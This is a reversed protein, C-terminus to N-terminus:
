RVLQSRVSDNRRALDQAWQSRTGQRVVEPVDALGIGAQKEPVDPAPVSRPVPEIVQHPPDERKALKEGREPPDQWDVFFGKQVIQLCVEGSVNLVTGQQSYCSCREGMHVCAAPYPAQRPRTVEDYVPATHPLSAIRPVRQSIYDQAMDYAVQQANVPPPDAAPGSVIMRPGGAGVPAPQGRNALSSYAVWLLLPILLLMLALFYLTRPIKKKGTHLSASRYWAYVDKPFPQMTVTGSKGSGPKECQANVASWELVSVLDAGFARKLHRHWGPSGILRRVFADLNQPHQTILYFDFGRRRHEALMRVHEPPTGSPPRLPFDNHCEDILFITGDPEDQWKTVDIKKWNALPGGDVPEFRGNHAVPRNEKTAREQVWKLTNLTKGAGNAGTILYLM